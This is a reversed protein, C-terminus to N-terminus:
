TSGFDPDVGAVIRGTVWDAGTKAGLIWGLWESPIRRGQSSNHRACVVILNEKNTSGYRFPGTPNEEYPIYHGGQPFRGDCDGRWAFFCRGRQRKLAELVAEKGYFRKNVFM